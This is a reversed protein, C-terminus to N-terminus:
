LSDSVFKEIQKRNLEEESEIIVLLEEIKRKLYRFKERKNELRTIASDVWLSIKEFYNIGDKKSELSKIQEIIAAKLMEKMFLKGYSEIELPAIEAMLASTKSFFAQLEKLHNLGSETLSHLKNVRGEIVEERTIVYGKEEFKEIDRLLSGRPFNYKELQYASIGEINRSLIMLLVFQRIKQFDHRGVPLPPDVPLELFFPFQYRMTNEKESKKKNQREKSNITNTNVM